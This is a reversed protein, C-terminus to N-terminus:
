LITTIFFEGLIAKVREAEEIVDLTELAISEEGTVVLDYLCQTDNKCIEKQEDTFTLDEPFIPTYADRRTRFNYNADLFM